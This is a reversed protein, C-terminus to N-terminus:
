RNCYLYNKLTLELQKPDDSLIQFM